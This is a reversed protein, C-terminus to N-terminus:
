SKCRGVTLTFRMAVTYALRMKKRATMGEVTLRM